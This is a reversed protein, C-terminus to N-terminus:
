SWRRVTATTAAMVRTPSFPFITDAEVEYSLVVGDEDQIVLTGATVVYLVRPKPNLVVADSPTIAGHKTAPASSGIALNKMAQSVSM